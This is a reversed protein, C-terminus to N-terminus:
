SRLEEEKTEYYHQTKASENFLSSVKRKKVLPIDIEQEICLDKVENFINQFETENRLNIFAARLSTEEPWLM